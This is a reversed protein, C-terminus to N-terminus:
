LSIQFVLPSFFSFVLLNLVSFGFYINFLRSTAYVLSTSYYWGLNMWFDLIPFSLDLRWIAEM